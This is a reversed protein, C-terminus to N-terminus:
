IPRWTNLRKRHEKEQKIRQKDNKIADRGKLIEIYDLATEEKPFQHPVFYAGDYGYDIWGILRWFLFKKIQIRFEDGNTIVRYKMSRISGEM